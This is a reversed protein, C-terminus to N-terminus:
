AAEEISEEEDLSLNEDAADAGEPQLWDQMIDRGMAESALQGLRRARDEFFAEFDDTRLLAPNILHTALIADLGEDTQGSRKRIDDLYASPARGGIIRNTQASLATKNIISNYRAPAIGRAECWARPFIHHIDLPNSFVTMLEVPKGSLFDRCGQRMLLAHFGKYAASGRSRLSKLRSLQFLTEALTRPPPGDNLWATLEAVDRAIKTETASGYYEGLVVSWYWQALKQYHGVHRPTSGMRAFLAAIVAVQAPYPLDRAWFIKQDNLFSGAEIYGKEVAPAHRQYADLPLKLLAERRCTVQPLDLGEKGASAAKEREDMTHLVTCAQLFDVPKLEAHVGHEHTSSRIRGLRGHARPTGSWDERLDFDSGAYIATVLEFADLKVGGVNVKEFITCVAERGNDKLLRIVPMEYKQITRITKKLARETDNVDVDHARWYDRWGYIWDDEDFVQDMPFMHHEYQGEPTSLDLEVERGFNTMRKKDAPLLEFAEELHGGEAIAKRINLFIHREIRQNKANKLRAPETSYLSQFLSTMRQQGDLLLEEPQVASALKVGEIPRPKFDVEGGRELLLLAGVPYGRAISCLLSIVAEDTWVYDRQFEPLQLAGSSVQELLKELTKKTSDFSM